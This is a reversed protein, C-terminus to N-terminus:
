LQWSSRFSGILSSDMLFVDNGLWGKVSKPLCQQYAWRWSLQQLLLRHNQRKRIQDVHFCFCRLSMSRQFIQRVCQQSMSIYLPLTCKIVKNLCRANYLISCKFFWIIWLFSEWSLNSFGCGGQKLSEPTYEEYICGWEIVRRSVNQSSTKVNRRRSHFNSAESSTGLGERQRPIQKKKYCCNCCGM